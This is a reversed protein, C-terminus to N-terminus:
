LFYEVGNLSAWAPAAVTHTHGGGLFGHDHSADASFSHDHSGDTTTVFSSGDLHSHAGNVSTFGGGGASVFTIDGSVTASAGTATSGTLTVRGDTHFDWVIATGNVVQRAAAVSRHATPQFEEGLADGADIMETGSVSWGGQWQMKWSGNDLVKRYYIDGNSNGNHSGNSLTARTWGNSTDPGSASAAATSGTIVIDPGQKRIDVTQGVVPSYSSDIRVNDITVTTDGRFQISVTPPATDHSVATIIAKAHTSPDFGLAGTSQLQEALARLESDASSVALASTESATPASNSPPTPTTM